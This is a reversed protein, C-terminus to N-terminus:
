TIEGKSAKVLITEKCSKFIQAPLNLLKEKLNLNSYNFTQIEQVEFGALNLLAYLEKITYEHHHGIFPPKSKYIDTANPLVTEGKLLQMRKPWYAINPVDLILVGGPKLSRKINELLLKPSHPLHELLAMCYVTDYEETLTPLKKNVYDFDHFELGEGCLFKLLPNFAGKYYELKEAITVDFGLRKLTLGFTGFFSGIDLCKGPKRLNYAKEFRKVSCDLYQKFDFDKWAYNYESLNTKPAHKFVVYNAQKYKKSFNM